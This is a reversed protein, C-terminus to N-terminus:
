IMSRRKTKWKKDSLLEKELYFYEESQAPICKKYEILAERDRNEVLKEIVFKHCQYKKGLHMGRDADSMGQLFQCLIHKPAGHQHLATVLTDVDVDCKIKKMFANPKVFEQLLKEWLDSTVLVNIKIWHQQITDIKLSNCYLVIDQSSVKNQVNEKFLNLLCEIPSDSTLNYKILYDLFTQYQTLTTKNFASVISGLSNFFNGIEEKTKRISTYNRAPLYFTNILENTSGTAMYVTHLEPFKYQSILYNTYQNLAIKHKSIHYHFNTDNLTRRLFLVVKLIVNGDFTECAKQLLELKQELDRYHDLVCPVGLFLKKITEEVVPASHRAALKTDQLICDLGKKSIVSHIPLTTTNHLSNYFLTENTDDSYDVTEEKVDDDFSFGSLRSEKWYDDETLNSM